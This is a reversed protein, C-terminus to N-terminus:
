EGAEKRASVGGGRANLVERVRASLVDATFPKQLFNAAEESVGEALVVNGTYGSMFLVGIDPRLSRIREALEQGNEGPLVVDTLLLDIVEHTQECVQVAMPASGAQLVTYGFSTLASAVFRRVEVNDEVLLVTGTGSLMAGQPMTKALPDGVVRPLFIKFTSGRGQESDVSIWGGNQKVIGYVTSLGLGTGAGATKTTFFPEFLREQTQKDMGTGTDSVELVVFSRSRLNPHEQSAHTDAESNSTVIELRGGQGMADRANGVLNMVVQHIQSPDALISWLDRELRTTLHINEPLLRRLMRETDAIIANINLVSPDRAPMRSFAMLQRVLDAAEEGAKRIIEAFGRATEPAVEPMSILDSYGNVVTLINNFDHAIGGALLGIAEMKQAQRLQQEIKVRETIDTHIGILRAPHGSADRSVIEGRSLVSVYDGTKKRLRFEVDYSKRRGELYGQIGELASALDDPHVLSRWGEFSPDIEGIAYGLMRCYQPSFYAQGSALDWDWLGQKTAELGLELRSRSSELEREAEKRATVDQKIAIFQTITGRENLIPTVTMEEFYCSGDKRRNILEGSWHKGSLITRWLDLYSEATQKGSKLIRPTQGIVEDATYGTMETFAPNVWQISGTRDTILIGNASAAVAATLLRAELVADDGRM